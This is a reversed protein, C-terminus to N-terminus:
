DVANFTRRDYFESKIRNGWEDLMVAAHCPVSSVAAAALVTHYKQNALEKTEHTTTIQAISDENRQIEVVLYM